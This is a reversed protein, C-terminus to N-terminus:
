VATSTHSRAPIGEVQHKDRIRRKDERKKGQERRRGDDQLDDVLPRFRAGSRKQNLEKCRHLQPQGKKGRSSLLYSKDKKTTSPWLRKQLIRGKWRSLHWKSGCFVFFWFM